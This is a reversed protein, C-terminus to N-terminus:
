GGLVLPIAIGFIRADVVPSYQAQYIQGSSCATIRCDLMTVIASRVLRYSRRPFFVVSQATLNDEPDVLVVEDPELTPCNTPETRLKAYPKPDRPISLSM